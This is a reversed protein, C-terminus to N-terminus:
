LYYIFLYDSSRIEYRHEQQNVKLAVGWAVFMLLAGLPLGNSANPSAAIHLALFSAFAILLQTPWYIWGTRGYNHPTRKSKLWLIRSIFTITAIVAPTGLLTTYGGHHMLYEIWVKTPDGQDMRIPTYGGHKFWVKSPDGQDMTLVTSM